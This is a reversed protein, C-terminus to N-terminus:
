LHTLKPAYNYHGQSYHHIGPMHTGFYRPINDGLTLSNTNMGLADNYTSSDSLPHSPLAMHQKPSVVPQTHQIYGQPSHRSLMSEAMSHGNYATTPCTAVSTCPVSNVTQPHNDAFPSKTTTLAQQPQISPHTVPPSNLSSFQHGPRQQFNPHQQSPLQSELPTQHPQPPHQQVPSHIDGVSDDSSSMDQMDPINLQGDSALNMNGNLNMNVEPLGNDGNAQSKLRSTMAGPQSHSTMSLPQEQHHDLDISLPSLKDTDGKGKQEKKFKMRRNQFWIKIQRETLSLLAAMEIRRPRCLYRNFHFEKELEVLQASTYATRARKSPPDPDATFLLPFFSNSFLLFYPM